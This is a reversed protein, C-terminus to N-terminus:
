DPDVIIEVILEEDENEIIIKTDKNSEKVYDQVIKYHNVHKIV